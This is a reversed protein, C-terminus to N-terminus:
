RHVSNQLAVQPSEELICSTRSFTRSRRTSNAQSRIHFRCPAHATFAELSLSEYFSLHRIHVWICQFAGSVPGFHFFEPFNLNRLIKKQETKECTKPRTYCSHNVSLTSIVFMPKRGATYINPFRDPLALFKRFFPTSMWLATRYLACATLSVPM